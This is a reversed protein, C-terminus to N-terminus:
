KKGTEEYKWKQQKLSEFRLPQQEVRWNDLNKLDRVPQVAQAIQVLLPLGIGPFINSVALDKV